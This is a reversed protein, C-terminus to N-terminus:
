LAYAGEAVVVASGAVEVRRVGAASGHATARLLSPRGIEEGQRVEIQEGFGIAGHRALHVAIPGAASGTAPDEPVGLTPAFNRAKWRRGSGAACEAQVDLAALAALDPALAAVQEEADLVVVTHRPGNDYLEVPL